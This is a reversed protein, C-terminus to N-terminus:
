QFVYGFTHLNSFFVRNMINPIYLFLNYRFDFKNSMHIFFILTLIDYVKFKTLEILKM